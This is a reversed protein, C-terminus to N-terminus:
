ESLAEWLEVWKEYEILGDDRTDLQRVIQDIEEQPLYEGCLDAMIEKLDGTHLLGPKREAQQFRERVERETSAIEGFTNVMLMLFEEFEIEGSGDDDVDKMMNDLEAETMEQGFARFVERLESVDISGSGDKDFHNFCERLGEIQGNTLSKKGQAKIKVKLISFPDSGEQQASQLWILFEDFDLELNGDQDVAEISKKLEEDTMEVGLKRALIKFELFDIKGSKDTDFSQFLNEIYRREQETLSEGKKEGGDSETM